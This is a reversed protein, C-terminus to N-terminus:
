IPKYKYDFKLFRMDATPGTIPISTSAKMKLERVVSPNGSLVWMAGENHSLTQRAFDGLRQWSDSAGLLRIDWPPNTIITDIKQKSCDLEGVDRCSFKILKHVGAAAAGRIALEIAGPHVDNAVAVRVGSSALEDRKDVSAAADFADYWALKTASDSWRLYSPLVRNSNHSRSISEEAKDSGSYRILGPATNAAILAAEIAITASGCM